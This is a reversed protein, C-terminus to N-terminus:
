PHSSQNRNRDFDLEDIKIYTLPMFQDEGIKYRRTRMQGTVYVKKGERMEDQLSQVRKGYLVATVWTTWYKANGAEDKGAYDNVAISLEGVLSGDPESRVDMDRGLNGSIISKNM